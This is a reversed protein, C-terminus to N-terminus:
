AKSRAALEGPLPAKKRPSQGRSLRGECPLHGLLAIAPLTRPRKRSGSVKMM